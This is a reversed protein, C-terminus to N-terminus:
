NWNEWNNELKNQNSKIQNSQFKIQNWIKGYKGMKKEMKENTKIPIRNFEMNKGNKIIEGHNHTHSKPKSWEM